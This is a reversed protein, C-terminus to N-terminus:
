KRVKAKPTRCMSQFHGRRGCRHCIREVAPCPDEKHKYRGCRHCIEKYAPAGSDTYRPIGPKNLLVRNVQTTNSPVNSPRPKMQAAQYKISQHANVLKICDDLTLKEKELLKCRLDDAANQIIKDVIAFQRCELESKGFSCKEAKQQVRLLFKEIPEENEPTMTWFQFREFCEHHKPSFHETLKKKAEVYPDSGMEVEDAGPIAYFVTQLEIGGMALMQAKRSYGDIINTAIMVNEFWRIWSIWTNRVESPPLHAFKFQPLNYSAPSFFAVSQVIQQENAM